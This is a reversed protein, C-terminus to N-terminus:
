YAYIGCYNHQQTTDKCTAINQLRAQSMLLYNINFDCSSLFINTQPFFWGDQILCLVSCNISEEDTRSPCLKKEYQYKILAARKFHQYYPMLVPKLFAWLYM